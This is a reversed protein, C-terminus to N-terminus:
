RYNEISYLFIDKCIIREHYKLVLPHMIQAMIYSWPLPYGDDGYEKAIYKKLEPLFHDLRKHTEEMWEEVIPSYPKYVFAGNCILNNHYKKIEVGIPGEVNSVGGVYKERPAIGWKDDSSNLEEFLKKWSRLCPKIDSYGGGFHLMFYSRLYDARHVFSLYEYAPHLPFDKLVYENLNNATVLVVEVESLEKLSEIGKLRNPPIENNGTWFIYIVEKAKELKIKNVKTKNSVFSDLYIEENYKYPVIHLTYFKYVEVYIPLLLPILKKKLKNM